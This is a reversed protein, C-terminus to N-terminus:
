ACQHPFRAEWMLAFRNLAEKWGQVTDLEPGDEGVVPWGVPRTDESRGATREPCLCRVSKSEVRDM